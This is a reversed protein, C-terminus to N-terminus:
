IRKIDSRLCLFYTRMMYSQEDKLVFHLKTGM